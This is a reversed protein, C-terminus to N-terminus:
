AVFGFVHVNDLTFDDDKDIILELGEYVEDAVNYVCGFITSGDLSGSTWQQIGLSIIPRLTRISGVLNSDIDDILILANEVNKLKIEHGDLYIYERLDIGYKEKYEDLSISNAPIPLVITKVKGFQPYSVNAM